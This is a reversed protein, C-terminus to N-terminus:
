ERPRYEGFEWRIAASVKLYAARNDPTLTGDESALAKRAATLARYAPVADEKAYWSRSWM